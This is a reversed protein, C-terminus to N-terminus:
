GDELLLSLITKRESISQNTISRCRQARYCQTYKFKFCDSDDIKIANIYRTALANITVSNVDFIIINLKVTSKKNQILKYYNINNKNYECSTKM